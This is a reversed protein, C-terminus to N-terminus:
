SAEGDEEEACFNNFNTEGSANGAEMAARFDECAAENDGIARYCVGRLNVLVPSSEGQEMVYNIDDITEEHNELHYNSFARM